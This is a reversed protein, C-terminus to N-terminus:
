ASMQFSFRQEEITPGPVRNRVDLLSEFGIFWSHGNKRCDIHGSKQCEHGDNWVLKILICSRAYVFVTWNECGNTESPSLREKFRIKLHGGGDGSVCVCKLM